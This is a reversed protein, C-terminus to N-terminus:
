SSELNEIDRQVMAYYKQFEAYNPALEVLGEWHQLAQNFRKKARNNDGMKDRYFVALKAYSIALNNKYEVNNPTEQYLQKTLEIDKEFFNLAQELNGLAVHTEGLKSYSIALGNKFSVNKPYDRYLQQRLEFYKEFFNLAQEFNSLAAHTDGLKLYSIALGNKFSVNNPTEQYLQKFLKTEEDFFNLAQELNGLAAHTKGLKEYSIALGKKFSTNNPHDQYLQKFLVTEEDFYNLAQDLNGLASHTDGLKEYSIALGNQIKPDNSKQSLASFQQAMAEYAEMSKILDGTHQYYNGINQWLNGTMPTPQTLLRLASEAYRVFHSAHTYNDLHVYEQSLLTILNNVLIDTSETLDTTKVRVVEQVVPSWKFTQSDIDHEIWGKDALNGIGDEFDDIEELLANLYVFPISETPLLSICQLLQRENDLLDYLDYMAAIIEEPEAKQLNQYQTQVEKTHSLHLLGKEQLDKLLGELSYKEGFRNVKNLNKAIVEMVLTNQNVANRIASVIEKEEQDLPKYYKSFLKFTDGESLGEITLQDENRFNTVRSTVILYLDSIARIQDYHQNLDDPDNANDLVLLKRGDLNTLAKIIKAKKEQETEREFKLGLADQLTIIGQGIGNTASVWALHDYEGGYSLYYEAALTTKGIGGRGNVLIQSQLGQEEWLRRRLKELEEERGLFVEPAVPPRTLNKKVGSTTKEDFRQHVKQFEEVVTEELKDLKEGLLILLDTNVFNSAANNVALEEKFVRQIEAVWYLRGTGKECGTKLTDEFSKLPFIKEHRLEGM